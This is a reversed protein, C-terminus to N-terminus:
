IEYVLLAKGTRFTPSSRNAALANRTTMHKPEAEGSLMAPAYSEIVRSVVQDNVM